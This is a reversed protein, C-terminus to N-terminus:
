EVVEPIDFEIGWFQQGWDVKGGCLEESDALAKGLVTLEESLKSDDVNATYIRGLTWVLLCHLCTIRTAKASDYTQLGVRSQQLYNGDEDVAVTDPVMALQWAQLQPSYHAYPQVAKCFESFYGPWDSTWLGAGYRPWIEKELVKRIAGSTKSSDIWGRLLKERLDVERLLAVEIVTLSEVCQRILCMAVAHQGKRNVEVSLTLCHIFHISACLASNTLNADGLGKDSFRDFTKQAPKWLLPSGITYWEPLERDGNTMLKEGLKKVVFTVVTDESLVDTVQTSLRAMGVVCECNYAWALREYSVYFGFLAGTLDLIRLLFCFVFCERLPQTLERNRAIRALSQPRPM